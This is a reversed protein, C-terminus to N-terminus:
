ALEVVRERHVPTGARRAGPGVVLEVAAIGVHHIGHVDHRVDLGPQGRRGRGLGFRLVHGPFLVLPVGDGDRSGRRRELCAASLLFRADGDAEPQEKTRTAKPRNRVRLTKRHLDTKSPAKTHARPASLLWFRRNGARATVHQSIASRSWSFMLSEKTM